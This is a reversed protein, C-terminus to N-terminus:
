FSEITDNDPRHFSMKDLKLIFDFQKYKNQIKGFLLQAFSNIENIDASNIDIFDYGPNQKTQIEKFSLKALDLALSLFGNENITLVYENIEFQIVFSIIGNDLNLETKSFAKNIVNLKKEIRDIDTYIYILNQELGDVLQYHSNFNEQSRKFEMFDIRYQIDNNHFYLANKEPNYVIQKSM